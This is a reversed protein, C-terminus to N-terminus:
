YDIMDKIIKFVKQFNSNLGLLVNFYM